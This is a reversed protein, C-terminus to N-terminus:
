QKRKGGNRRDKSQNRAEIKRERKEGDRWHLYERIPADVDNMPSWFEVEDVTGVRNADAAPPIDVEQAPLLLQDPVCGPFGNHHSNGIQVEDVYGCVVASVVLTSAKCCM